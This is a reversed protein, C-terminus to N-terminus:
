SQCLLHSTKAAGSCPCTWSKLLATWAYFGGHQTKSVKFFNITENLRANSGAKEDWFNHMVPTVALMFLVQADCFHQKNSNCM